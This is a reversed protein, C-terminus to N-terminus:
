PLAVDEVGDSGEKAEEAENYAGDDVCLAMFRRSESSEIKGELAAGGGARAGDPGVRPFLGGVVVEVAAAARTFGGTGEVVAEVAKSWAAVIAPAPLPLGGWPSKFSPPSSSSSSSAVAGTPGADGEPM